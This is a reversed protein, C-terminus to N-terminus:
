KNDWTTRIQKPMYYKFQKPHICFDVVGGGESIDEWSKIDLNIAVIGLTPLKTFNDEILFNAFETLEPNHGILFINEYQDDQLTLVNMITKIDSRYFENMYHTHGEFGIKKALQDATIQARLASSSLILDPKINRLSMYSAMTNLDKLGKESLGREFDSLKGDSWDSKAHRVLYLTKM